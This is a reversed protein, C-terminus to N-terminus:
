IRGEELFFDLTIQDAKALGKSNLTFKGNEFSALHQSVLHNIRFAYEGRFDFGYTEFIYDMEIGFSTRLRTLLYENLRQTPTLTEVTDPLVQEGLRRLYIANNAVNSYRNTGDYSHAGPGIGIYSVGLWYNTNHRSIQGDKSFNSVEYQHFDAKKLSDVALEYQDANEGEKVEQLQGKKFWNGFVTGQEITLSYLSVHQIDLTMLKQLDSQWIALAHPPIAYILDCSINDFGSAKAALVADIAQQGTHNRNLFLLRQDEFTQIGISLRNIGVSQWNILSDHDIDEPNAELTVEAEPSVGFTSRVARMLKELQSRSLLSPTGGGLYITDVTEHIFQHRLEMERIMAAVM